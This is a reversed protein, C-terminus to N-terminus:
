KFNVSVAAIRWLIALVKSRVWKYRKKIKKVGRRRPIQNLFNMPLQQSLYQDQIRLGRFLEICRLYRLKLFEVTRLIIRSYRDKM